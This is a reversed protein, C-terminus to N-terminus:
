QHHESMEVMNISVCTSLKGFLVNLQRAAYPILDRYQNNRTHVAKYERHEDFVPDLSTPRPIFEQDNFLDM